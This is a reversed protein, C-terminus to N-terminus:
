KAQEKNKLETRYINKLEAALDDIALEMEAGDMGADFDVGPRGPRRMFLRDADLEIIITTM